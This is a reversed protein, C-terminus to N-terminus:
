RFLCFMHHFSMCVRTVDDNGNTKRLPYLFDCQTIRKVKQIENNRHLIRPSITNLLLAKIINQQHALALM